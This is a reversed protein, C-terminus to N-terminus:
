EVNPLKQLARLYCIQGMHYCDHPLLYRVRDLNVAPNGLADSLRRQTDALRQYMRQWAEATVDQIEPFNLRQIEDETPAPGSAIRRLENERWFVMHAVIQWISHRAPGPTWAAQQPTLGALAKNWAAAWLGTEWADNWMKLLLERDM